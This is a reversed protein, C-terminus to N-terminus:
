RAIRAQEEAVARRAEAERERELREAKEELEGVYRRRTGVSDGILWAVAFTVMRAVFEGYQSWGADAWLPLLLFALAAAGAALSTRRDCREAVTFLAIGAPVPNYIGLSGVAVVTTLVTSGLVWLPYRRRVLLPLCTAVALPVGISRHLHHVAFGLATALAFLTLAVDVIRPHRHLWNIVM